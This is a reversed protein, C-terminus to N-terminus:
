KKETFTSCAFKSMRLQAEEPIIRGLRMATTTPDEWCLDQVMFYYTEGAEAIWASASPRRGHTVISANQWTTCLQHPGPDIAIYFYSNAQTGGVWSGDIGWKTTPQPRAPYDVDDQIFYVLAKGAPPQSVPHQSEHSKV